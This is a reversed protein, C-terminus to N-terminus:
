DEWLPETLYPVGHITMLAHYGDLWDSKGHVIDYDILTADVDWENPKYGLSVPLIGVGGYLSKVSNVVPGVPEVVVAKVEEVVLVPAAVVVPAQAVATESEEVVMGTTKRDSVAEPEPKATVTAPVM